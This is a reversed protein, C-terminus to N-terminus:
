FRYTITTWFTRGPREVDFNLSKETVTYYKEDFVNKMVFAVEVDPHLAKTTRAAINFIPYGELLDRRKDADVDGQYDYPRNRKGIYQFYPSVSIYKLGEYTLGLNLMQEPLTGIDSGDDEDADLNTYNTFYRLDYEPFQGKLGLEIGRTERHKLNEFNGPGVTKIFDTIENKFLSFELRHDTGLHQILNLETTKIIEPNLSIDGENEGDASQKYLERYAPSRFAEGYLGKIITGKIPEFVIVGRPSMRSGTEEYSDYRTGITLSLIDEIFRMEDEVYAAKNRNIITTPAPGPKASVWGTLGSDAPTALDDEFSFSHDLNELEYTAGFLLDNNQALKYRWQVDLGYIQSERSAKKDKALIGSDFKQQKGDLWHMNAYARGRMNLRETIDKTYGLRFFANEQTEDVVDTIPEIFDPLTTRYFGAQYDIDGHYGTLHFASNRIYRRKGSPDGDEDFRIKDIDSDIYRALISTGSKESGKGWLVQGQQSGRSGFGTLIETGDIDAPKKTIINVVGAFANTGYLSSGPGRIVEIHDINALPITENLPFTFYYLDRFPYGDFLLLTKHNYREGVGRIYISDEGHGQTPIYVGPLRELLDSLTQAGSDRIERETIVTINAPAKDISQPKRSPTIVEVDMLEEFSLKFLSDEENPDAYEAFTQM